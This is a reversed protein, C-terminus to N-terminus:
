RSCGIASRIRSSSSSSPRAARVQGPPPPLPLRDFDQPQLNGFAPPKPNFIVPPPPPQEQAPVPPPPPIPAAQAPAVEVEAKQALQHEPAIRDEDSMTLMKALEPLLKSAEEPTRGSIKATQAVLGTRVDVLRANVTVGSLASVSGLM